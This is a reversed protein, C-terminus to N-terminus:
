GVSKWCCVLCYGPTILFCMGWVCSVPSGDPVYISFALPGLCCLLFFGLFPPLLHFSNTISASFAYPCSLQWRGYTFAAAGGLGVRDGLGGLRAKESM